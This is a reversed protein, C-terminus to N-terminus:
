REAIQLRVNAKNVCSKNMTNVQIYVVYEQYLVHVRLLSYLLMCVAVALLTRVIKLLQTDLSYLIVGERMRPKTTYPNDCKTLVSFTAPEIGASILVNFEGHAVISSDRRKVKKISKRYKKSVAIIVELAFRRQLNWCLLTILVYALVFYLRNRFV